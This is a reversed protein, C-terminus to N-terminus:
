KEKLMEVHPIDDEFYEKGTSVFGFKEYFQVLYKQASIRIPEKGFKNETFKMVVEMMLIGFGDQRVNKATAVRGISIEKYSVGKPLIRCTAVVENLDNYGIFHYAELDKGDIEPYPCNQEVVFVDIRLKLLNHFELATLESFHKIFFIM